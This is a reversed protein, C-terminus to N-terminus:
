PMSWSPVLVAKSSKQESNATGAPGVSQKITTTVIASLLGAGTEDSVAGLGWLRHVALEKQRAM